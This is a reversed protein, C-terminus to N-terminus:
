DPIVSVPAPAPGGAIGQHRLATWGLLLALIILATRIFAM